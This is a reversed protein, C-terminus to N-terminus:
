NVLGKSKKGYIIKILGAKVEAQPLLKKNSLFFFKLLEQNESLEDMVKLIKGFLNENKAFILLQHFNHFLLYKNILENAILPFLYKDEGTLSIFFNIKNYNLQIDSTNIIQKLSNILRQELEFFEKEFKLLEV